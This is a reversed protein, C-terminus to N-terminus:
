HISNQSEESYNYLSKHTLTHLDKLLCLFTEKSCVILKVNKKDILHLTNHFTLTYIKSELNNFDSM